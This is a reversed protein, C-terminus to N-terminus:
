LFPTKQDSHLAPAIEEVSRAKMRDILTSTDGVLEPAHVQWRVRDRIAVSMWRKKRDMSWDCHAVVAVNM